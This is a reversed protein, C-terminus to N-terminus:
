KKGKGLFKDTRLQANERINVWFLNYDAIHYNKLSFFLSGPFKPKHVWLLGNHVQADAIAPLVKHYKRLVTGENLSKGAPLRDLTWTLPNTVIIEDGLPFNEPLFGYRYSRWTCFCDTQEPKACPPIRSFEGEKIPWGVLYAAVLQQQLPKGDFFEKLLRVGHVTGQSHAAIIIPRGQNYNKLYYSFSAEIDSYAIDLAEKASQKDDTYFSHLHAQRYRPAFVRGAGNFISAQHLITTGDTKQNLKADSINANWTDAKGTFTTPHLFFVDVESEAQLDKFDASPVQDANDIKGPLAAWNEPKAYDPPPPVSTPSFSGPKVACSQLIFLSAIIYWRFKM